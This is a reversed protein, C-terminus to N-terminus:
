TGTPKLKPFKEFYKISAKKLDELFYEAGAGPQIIQPHNNKIIDSVAEMEFIEEDSFLVFSEFTKIYEKVFQEAGIGEPFVQPHAKLLNQLRKKAEEKNKAIVNSSQKETM